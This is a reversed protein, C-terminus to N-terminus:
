KKREGSVTLLGSENDVDVSIDEERMGPPEATLQFGNRTEHFDINM